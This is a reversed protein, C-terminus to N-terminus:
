TQCFTVEPIDVKTWNNLQQGAAKKLVFCDVESISLDEDVMTVQEQFVHETSVFKGPISLAM